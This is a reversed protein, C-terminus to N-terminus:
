LFCNIDYYINKDKKEELICRYFNSKIPFSLDFSKANTVNFLAVITKRKLRLMHIVKGNWFIRM